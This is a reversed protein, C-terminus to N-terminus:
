CMKLVYVPIAKLMSCCIKFPDIKCVSLDDKARGDSVM